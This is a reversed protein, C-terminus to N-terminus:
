LIITVNPSLSGGRGGGKYFVGYGYQLRMNNNIKEAGWHRALDNRGTFVQYRVM